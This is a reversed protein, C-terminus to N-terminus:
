DDGGGLGHNFAFAVCTSNRCVNSNPAIKKFCSVCEGKNAKRQKAKNVAGKVAATAIKKGFGM